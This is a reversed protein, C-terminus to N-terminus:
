DARVCDFDISAHLRLEAKAVERDVLVPYFGKGFIAPDVDFRVFFERGAQVVVDLRDEDYALTVTHVGPLVDITYGMHPLLAEYRRNDVVVDPPVGLAKPATRYIWIRGRDAPLPSTCKSTPGVPSPTTCASALLLPVLVAILWPRMSM